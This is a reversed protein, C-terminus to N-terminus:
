QKAIIECQEVLNILGIEKCRSPDKKTRAESAIVNFKCSARQNESTIQDCISSDNNKQASQEISIRNKDADRGKVKDSVQTECEKKYREDSVKKCLAKDLASVAATTAIQDNIVQECSAKLTGDVIDKCRAINGAATAQNFIDNDLVKDSLKAPTSAGGCATLFVGTLFLSALTKKM